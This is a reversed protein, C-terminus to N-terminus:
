GLSRIQGVLHTLLTPFPELRVNQDVSKVIQLELSQKALLVSLQDLVQSLESSGNGTSERRRRRHQSLVAQAAEVSDVFRYNQLVDLNDPYFLRDDCDKRPDADESPFFIVTDCRREVVENAIQVDGGLGGPACLQIKDALQHNGLVDRLLSALSSGTQETALIVDYYELSEVKSALFHCIAEKRFDHALVGLCHRGDKAPMVSPRPPSAVSGNYNGTRVENIFDSAVNIQRIYLLKRAKSTRRLALTDPAEHDRTAHIVLSFNETLVLNTLRIMGKMKPGTAKMHQRGIQYQWLEFDKEEQVPKSDALRILHSQADTAITSGVIEDIKDATGDTCVVGMINVLYAGQEYVFSKFEPSDRVDPTGTLAVKNQKM